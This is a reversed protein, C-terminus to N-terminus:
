SSVPGVHVTPHQQGHLGVVPNALRRWTRALASPYADAGHTVVPGIQREGVQLLAIAACVQRPARVQVQSNLSESSCWNRSAELNCPHNQMGAMLCWLRVRHAKLSAQEIVKLKYNSRTNVSRVFRLAATTRSHLPRMTM